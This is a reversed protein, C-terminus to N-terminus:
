RVRTASTPRPSAWSCSFSAWSHWLITFSSSWAPSCRSTCLGRGPAAGESCRMAEAPAPPVSTLHKRLVWTALTANVVTAIAAKWGFQSLMWASDWQWTTAVMLVPPAAYSTLTGGISINVFLVGLALYKVREPIHPAFVSPAMMLAAITMAAPETILSGLLPIAALCLWTTAIPTAVPLM